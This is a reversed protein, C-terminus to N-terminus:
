SVKATEAEPVEPPIPTGGVPLHLVLTSGQGLKSTVTLRGKVAEAISKALPLGLGTGHIQAATASAGRYFPEFIHELDEPAIGAGKDSVAVQIEDRGDENVRTARVALWRSEGGYKVANTILNQLCQSLAVLDGSVPPLDREVHKEVTFAAASVLEATSELAAKVVDEVALARVHHRLGNGNAAFLLVQEVLHILQRAQTQIVKGYRIVQQQNDVVGDAINDAASSIVTLPTRLEHSVGAVFAMQLRALRQARQTSVLVVGTTAVLVLLVGFSIALNRRRISAAVAELSGGRSGVAIQWDSPPGEYHIPEFRMFAYTLGAHLQRRAYPESSPMPPPVMVSASSPMPPPVPMTGRSLMAAGMPPGFINVTFEAAATEQSPFAPDSTYIVRQGEGISVVAVQYAPAVGAFHREALEPFVHERLVAPDLQVIFFEATRPPAAKQPASMVPCVLAPVDQAIRCVPPFPGHMHGRETSFVMSPKGPEQMRIHMGAVAIGQDSHELWGRLQEFGDPWPAPEFEGSTQNLRLLAAGAGSYAYVDKVLQPHAAVRRAERYRRAAEARTTKSDAASPFQFADGAQALERYFDQRWNLLSSHLSAQMRMTTADSVVRSWHYQLVGLVILVAALAVVVALSSLREQLSPKM